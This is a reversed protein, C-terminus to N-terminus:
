FSPRRRVMRPSTASEFSVIPVMAVPPAQVLGDVLVLVDSPFVTQEGTGAPTLAITGNRSLAFANIMGRWHLAAELTVGRM